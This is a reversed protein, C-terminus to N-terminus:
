LFLGLVDQCMMSSFTVSRYGEAACCHSICYDRYLQLNIAAFM